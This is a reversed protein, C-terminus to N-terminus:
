SAESLCSTARGPAAALGRAARDRGGVIKSLRPARTAPSREHVWVARDAGAAESPGTGSGPPTVLQRRRGCTRLDHGTGGAGWGRDAGHQGRVGVGVCQPAVVVVQVGGEFFGAVM